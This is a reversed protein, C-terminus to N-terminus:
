AFLSCSFLCAGGLGLSEVRVFCRFVFLMMMKGLQRVHCTAVFVQEDVPGVLSVLTCPKVGGLLSTDTARDADGLLLVESSLSHILISPAACQFSRGCLKWLPLLGIAQWWSALHDAELGFGFLGGDDVFIVVNGFVLM